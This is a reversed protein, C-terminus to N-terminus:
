APLAAAGVNMGMFRTGKSSGALQEDIVITGQPLVLAQRALTLQQSDSALYCQVGAPFVLGGNVDTVAAHSVLVVFTHGDGAGALTLSTIARAPSVTEIVALAANIRNQLDLPDASEFFAFGASTTNAKITGYTSM